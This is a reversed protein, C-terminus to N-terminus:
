SCSIWISIKINNLTTHAFYYKCHWIFTCNPKKEESIVPKIWCVYLIIKIHKWFTELSLKPWPAVKKQQRWTDVINGYFFSIPFVNLRTGLNTLRHWLQIILSLLFFVKLIRSRTWLGVAAASFAALHRQLSGIWFDSVVKRCDTKHWSENKNKDPLGSVDIFMDYLNMFMILNMEFM